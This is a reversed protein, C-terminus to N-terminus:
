FFEPKAVARTLAMLGQQLHTKGIAVWRQDVVEDNSELEAILDELDPGHEKITNMLDIEAKSLERYGKIMRHQNDM